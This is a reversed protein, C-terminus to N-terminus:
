LGSTPEEPVPVNLTFIISCWSASVELAALIEARQNTRRGKDVTETIPNSFHKNYPNSGIEVGIGSHAGLGGNHPCAGDIFVIRTDNYVKNTSSCIPM